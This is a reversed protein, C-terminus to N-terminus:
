ANPHAQAPSCRKFPDVTPYVVTMLSDLVSDASGDTSSCRSWPLQGHGSM